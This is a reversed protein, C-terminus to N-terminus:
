SRMYIYYNILRGELKILSESFDFTLDSSADEANDNNKEIESKLLPIHSTTKTVNFIFCGKNIQNPDLKSQIEKFINASVNIEAVHYNTTKFTTNIVKLIYSSDKKIIDKIIGTFSIPRKDSEFLEQLEYTFTELTDWSTNANSIKIIKESNLLNLSDVRKRNDYDIEWNENTKEKIEQKCAFIYLALAALFTKKLATM